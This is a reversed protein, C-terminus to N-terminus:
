LHLRNRRRFWRCNQISFKAVRGRTILCLVTAARKRPIRTRIDGIVPINQRTHANHTTLYLGRRRASGEDLPAKGLTYTEM